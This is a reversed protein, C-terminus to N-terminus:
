YDVSMNSNILEENVFRVANKILEVICYKQDMPFLQVCMQSFLRFTKTSTKNTQGDVEFKM